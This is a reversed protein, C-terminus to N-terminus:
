VDPEALRRQFRLEQRSLLECLESLLQVEIQARDASLDISGVIHQTV